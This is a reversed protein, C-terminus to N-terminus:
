QISHPTLLITKCSSVGVVVSLLLRLAMLIILAQTFVFPDIGGPTNTACDWDSVDNRYRELINAAQTSFGGGNSLLDYAADLWGNCPDNDDTCVRCHFFIPGFLDSLSSEIGVCCRLPQPPAYNGVACLGSNLVNAFQATNGSPDTLNIPNGEVWSYGNLSLPRQMTGEFPDLSPFIGLTPAYYRARLYLLGNARATCDM